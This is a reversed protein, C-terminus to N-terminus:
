VLAATHRLLLPKIKMKSIDKLSINQIISSLKECAKTIKLVNENWSTLIRCTTLVRQRHNQHVLREETDTGSCNWQDSISGCIPKYVWHMRYKNYESKCQYQMVCVPGYLQLHAHHSSSKLLLIPWLTSIPTVEIDTYATVSAWGASM